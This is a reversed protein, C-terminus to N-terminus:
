TSYLYILPKYPEPYEREYEENHRRMQMHLLKLCVDFDDESLPLERLPLLPSDDPTILYIM